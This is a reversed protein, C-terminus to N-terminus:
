CRVDGYWAPRLNVQSRQVNILADYYLFVFVTAFFSSVFVMIKLGPAVARSTLGGSM